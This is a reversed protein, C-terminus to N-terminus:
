SSIKRGAYFYVTHEAIYWLWLFRLMLNLNRIFHKNFIIIVIQSIFGWPLRNNPLDLRTSKAQQKIKNLYDTKLGYKAGSIYTCHLSILLNRIPVISITSRKESLKNLRWNRTFTSRRQRNSKYLKAYDNRVYLFFHVHFFPSRNNWRKGQTLFSFAFTLVLFKWESVRIKRVCTCYFWLVFKYGSLPTQLM